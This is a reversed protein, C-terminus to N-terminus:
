RTRRGAAAHGSLNRSYAHRAARATDLAESLGRNRLVELASGAAGVGPLVIREANAVSEPIASAVADAGTYALANLVSRINGAGYDVVTVTM